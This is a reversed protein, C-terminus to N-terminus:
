IMSTEHGLSMFTECFSCSFTVFYEPRRSSNPRMHSQSQMTIGITIPLRPTTDSFKSFYLSISGASIDVNIHVFIVSSPLSFIRRFKRALLYGEDADFENDYVSQIHWYPQIFSVQSGISVGIRNSRM